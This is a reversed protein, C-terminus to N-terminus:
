QVENIIAAGVAQAQAISSALDKPSESGGVAYFGERQMDPLNSAGKIGLFGSEDTPLQLREALENTEAAPRMGVALVVLDFEEKAISQGAGDTAYQVIVSEDAGATVQYPRSRVFKMEDKCQHYFEDFGKGFNQIDMYFITIECDDGQYKMKRAMRLAYACCVASCYNTDDPRRFVEETRSGVCQIFALRKPPEDDSPRVIKGLRGLQQEAERGTIVNTASGYGYLNNETPDYASFGTAIVVDDIDIKSTRQKAAPDIAGVPCGQACANRVSEDAERWASEDVVAAKCSVAPHVISIAGGPGAEVCAGCGICAEPDIYRPGHSLVATYRRGNGGALLEALETNTQVKVDAVDAVSKLLDHGVCVNCRLCVDTAKCGMEAAHGGIAAEKEILYVQAGGEALAEACAVGAIGAGIVLVKKKPLKGTEAM